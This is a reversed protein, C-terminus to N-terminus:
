SRRARTSWCGSSRASTSTRRRWVEEPAIEHMRVAVVDEYHSRNFVGIEGRAPLAAHIRWLYDHQVEAGVAGQVLDGQVGTPNVGTSCVVSSVTRGRRTSARSSSCSATPDEAFLRHQLADIREVLEDLRKEGDDKATGLPDAPDRDAIGAPTGPEVKLGDLM